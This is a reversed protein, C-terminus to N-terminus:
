SRTSLTTWSMKPSGLLCSATLTLFPGAYPTLAFIWLARPPVVLTPKRSTTTKSLISHLLPATRFRNCLVANGLLANVTLVSTALKKVTNDNVRTVYRPIWRTVFPAVPTLAGTEATGRVM